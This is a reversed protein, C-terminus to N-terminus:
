QLKLQLSLTEQPRRHPALQLKVQKLMCFQPTRAPGPLVIPQKAAALQTTSHRPSQRTKQVSSTPRQSTLQGFPTEGMEHASPM